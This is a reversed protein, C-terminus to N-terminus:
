AALRRPLTVIPTEPVSSLGFLEYPRYGWRGFWTGTMPIPSCERAPTNGERARDTRYTTM